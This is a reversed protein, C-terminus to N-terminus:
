HFFGSHFLDHYKSIVYNKKNTYEHFSVDKTVEVDVDLPSCSTKSSLHGAGNLDSIQLHLIMSSAFTDLPPYSNM